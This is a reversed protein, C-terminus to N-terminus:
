KWAMGLLIVLLLASVHLTNKLWPLDALWLAAAGLLAALLLGPLLALLSARDPM